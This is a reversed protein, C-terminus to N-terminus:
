LFRKTLEKTHNGRHFIQCLNRYEIDTCNYLQISECRLLRVRNGNDEDVYEEDFIIGIPRFGTASYFRDFCESIIEMKDELSAAKSSEFDNAVECHGLDLYMLSCAPITGDLINKEILNRFLMTAKFEPSLEKDFYLQNHKIDDLRNYKKSIQYTRNESKGLDIFINKWKDDLSICEKNMWNEEHIDSSLQTRPNAFVDRNKAEGRRLIDDTTFYSYGCEGLICKSNPSSDTLDYFFEQVDEQSPYESELKISEFLKYKKLFKM